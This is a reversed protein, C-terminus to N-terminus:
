EEIEVGEPLLIYFQKEEIIRVEGNLVDMVGKCYAIIEEKEGEKAYDINIIVAEGSKVVDIYQKCDSICEPYFVTVGDINDIKEVNKNKKLKYSAKAKKERKKVQKIEEEDAEFGLSSFFKSMFGM